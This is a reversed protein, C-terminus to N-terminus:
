RSGEQQQTIRATPDWRRSRGSRAEVEAESKAEARMEGSRVLADRVVGSFHRSVLAVHRATVEVGWREAALEAVEDVRMGVWETIRQKTAENGRRVARQVPRGCVRLLYVERCQAPALSPCAHALAAADREARDLAVSTNRHRDVTAHERGGLSPDRSHQVRHARDPDTTSRMSAGEERARVWARVAAEPSPWGRVEPAEGRRSSEIARAGQRSVERAGYRAEYPGPLPADDPAALIADALQRAALKRCRACTTAELDDTLRSGMWGCASVRLEADASPARLHLKPM